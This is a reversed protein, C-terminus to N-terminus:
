SIKSLLEKPTQGTYKKFTRIFHSQDAFGNEYAINTLTTYDSTKLQNLSFSFQVIKAFQKATVGIEKLFKREFTRETLYLQELLKHIPINGKSNIITSVALKITNDPNVASYKITELIYNSILEVQQDTNASQLKSLTGLTDVNKVLHLDYCEDNIAKPDINLLLRTAFPYLQFIIMKYPGEIILEIPVITQGYLFFPPLLKNQPQISVGNNTKSFIIGPYGDAFFPLRHTKAEDSELLLIGKIFADIRKDKQISQM